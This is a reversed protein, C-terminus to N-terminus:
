ERVHEMGTKLLTYVHDDCLSYFIQRGERRTKVLSVNRLIMLQHSVASQTMGVANSLDGVNMEDEVALAFLIKIRTTDGFVSYLKALQPFECAMNKGGCPDDENCPNM